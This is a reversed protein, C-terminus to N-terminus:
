QQLLNIKWGPVNGGLRRVFETEKPLREAPQGYTQGLRDYIGLETQHVDGKIRSTHSTGQYLDFAQWYKLIMETSPIFLTKFDVSAAVLLFLQELFDHGAIAHKFKKSKSESEFKPTQINRILMERFETTEFRLAAIGYFKHDLRDLKQRFKQYLVRSTPVICYVDTDEDLFLKIFPTGKWNAILSPYWEEKQLKKLGIRIRDTFGKEKEMYRPAIQRELANAAIIMSNPDMKKLVKPNLKYHRALNLAMESKAGEGYPPQVLQSAMKDLDSALEKCQLSPLMGFRNHFNSAALLISNVERTGRHDRNINVPFQPPLTKFILQTHGGGMSTNAPDNSEGNTREHAFATSHLVILLIVIYSSSCFGSSWKIM